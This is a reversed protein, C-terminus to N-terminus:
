LREDAEEDVEDERRLIAGVEDCGIDFWVQESVQGPNKVMM